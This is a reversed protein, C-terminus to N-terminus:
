IQFDKNEYKNQDRIQLALPISFVLYTQIPFNYLSTMILRFEEEGPM